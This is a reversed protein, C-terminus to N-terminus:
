AAPLRPAALHRRLRHRHRRRRHRDRGQRTASIPSDDHQRRELLRQTNATLFEMAFHIGKCTAAKSPCTARSPPAPASCSPTSTAAAAAAARVTRASTRRQLRVQRRRGGAPQHPAPRGAAQRAEHQPHRVDAPRRPPRRARLRHGCHGAQNLQAAARSAPRAPASSPSRRAPARRRRSPCRGLRGGLRPRHDRMEINKITVPPENIGLVCSGECPAPCVRGTFEPFNNTKHLRDLAERWLGRYVLDNWEPILNNIPCGSAMGSILTGTHCFPMGCDMCRAGQQRLRKEECTRSPVRELRPHRELPARDVPLERLYEIFGTPKGMDHGTKLETAASARSTARTRRSRRWSRGRRREPGPGRRAAICAAARAQLGEAHGQRVQPVITTGTPRPRTARRDSGTYDAHREIMRRVEAIEDADTSSSWASWRRTAARARLRRAEDLVYAIGGSMGAAFNRGTPGLVVVRGGTMYECGHDGVAEVVADVGSNRVCFREGAMGRIYAEGSTAGYLAVNGIIINEEAAFTSGAPPISSSRAAPSARASTTTPTARSRCADHGAAHLRRLEPGASGHFHLRITDDPLGKPATAAPSRAASSPASSATSTASRCTPAVTEGRELAPEASSSCSRDHRAVQELGHDQAIQCYRGSTRASRPSTSSAALLRPRQAKWHDVAKRPELRDVRGIM